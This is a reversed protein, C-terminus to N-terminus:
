RDGAGQVPRLQGSGEAPIGPHVRLRRRFPPPHIFSGGRRQAPTDAASSRQRNHRRHRLGRTDSDTRQESRGALPPGRGKEIGPFRYPDSLGALHPNLFEPVSASEIGRAALYLAIPHPLRHDKMLQEVENELNQCSSKWQTDGMIAKKRTLSNTMVTCQKRLFM